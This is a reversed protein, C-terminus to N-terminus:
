TALLVVRFPAATASGPAPTLAKCFPIDIVAGAFGVAPVIGAFAPVVALLTAVTVNWTWTLLFTTVPM